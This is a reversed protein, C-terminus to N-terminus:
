PTTTEGQSIHSLTDVPFTQSDTLVYARGNEFTIGQVVGTAFSQAGVPVDAADVAAIEYTYRGGPLQGGNNDRGDWTVSQEGARRAGLPMTKVVRDSADYINILLDVADGELSFHIEQEGGARLDLVNGAARVTKGILTVAQANQMSTQSATLQEISTNINNLQELSSFQALQATFETGEMPNLPDQHKLQTTLLKLFDDKGLINTQPTAATNGPAGIPNLGVLSM